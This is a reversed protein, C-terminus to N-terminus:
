KYFSFSRVPSAEVARTPDAASDFLRMFLSFPYQLIRFPYLGFSMYESRGFAQDFFYLAEREIYDFPFVCLEEFPYLLKALQTYLVASKHGAVLFISEPGGIEARLKKGNQIPVTSDCTALFLLSNRADLYRALYKPDTKITNDLIKRLQEPSYGMQKQINLVYNRIRRERANMFIEPLDSGGVAMVNYKLRPEAGATIAANIAGRSIGFSGFNKKGYENEFFDIAIRDRIVGNRFLEELKDFNAPDKFENNRHVIASDYGQKAFYDAFYRSIIPRGGLVPLVFILDKSKENAQYFDIITSGVDTNITIQHILYEERQKIPTREFSIYSNGRSYYEDIQDPRVPPSKYDGSLPIRYCANLLLCLFTFCALLFFPRHTSLLASFNLCHDSTHDRYIERLHQSSM